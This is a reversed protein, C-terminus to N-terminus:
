ETITPDGGPDPGEIYYCTVFIDTGTLVLDCGVFYYKGIREACFGFCSARAVAPFSLIGAFIVGTLVSVISKRIM